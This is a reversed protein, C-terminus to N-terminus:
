TKVKERLQNLKQTLLEIEKYILSQRM